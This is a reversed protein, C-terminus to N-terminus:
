PAEPQMAALERRADAVRADLDAAMEELLNAGDDLRARHRTYLPFLEGAELAKMMEAIRDLRRRARAIQRIVRVLDGAVGEGQVSEPSAEWDALIAQLAGEDQHKYADNLRSMWTHRRMREEDTSALDPHVRRAASRYLAKVSAPPNFATAPKVEAHGIAERATAAASVRARRAAELAAEDNPRGAARAEAIRARLDDLTAYRSGVIRLYDAQFAALTQELTSLDLEREVLQQELASLEARKSQLEQEEPTKVRGAGRQSSRADPRVPVAEQM